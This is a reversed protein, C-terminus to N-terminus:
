GLDVEFDYIGGFTSYYIRYAVKGKIKNQYKNKLASLIDRPSESCIINCDTDFRIIVNNEEDPQSVYMKHKMLEATSNWKIFSKLTSDKCLMEQIFINRPLKIYGGVISYELIM